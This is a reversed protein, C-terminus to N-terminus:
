GDSPPASRRAPEIANLIAVQIELRRASSIAAGDFEVLRFRDFVREDMTRVESEVIQVRQSFLASALSFLLGSRDTTEVELTALGGSPDAVFRVTADVAGQPGPRANEAIQKEVSVRPDKEGRVFGIITKELNEADVALLKAGPAADLKRVWFLDVAERRGKGLDRTYVEAHHVDLRCVVLSASILSLLGPRDDAVVCLGNAARGFLGVSALADGRQTSVSAHAVIVDAEYKEAYAKPLSEAFTATFEPSPRRAM